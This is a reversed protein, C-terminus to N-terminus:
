WVTFEANETSWHVDRIYDRVATADGAEFLELIHRHEDNAKHLLRYAEERDVTSYDRKIFCRELQHLLNILRDNGCLRIYTSHFERQLDDYKLMLHSEIALDMSGVLFRLQSLIDEDLKPCALYAAQGDLPAIVEFVELANKRDFGRVRFGRRPLNDLYGDSALQILAERVPTRSVGMADCIAQESVRDGASLEGSDIRGAIYAYVNDKLSSRPADLQIEETVPRRKTTYVTHSVYRYAPLVLIDLEIQWPM